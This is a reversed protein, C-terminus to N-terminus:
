AMEAADDWILVSPSFIKCIHLCLLFVSPLPPFNDLALFGQCLWRAQALELIYFCWDLHAPVRTWDCGEGRADLDLQLIHYLKLTASLNATPVVTVSM